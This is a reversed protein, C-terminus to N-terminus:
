KSPYLPIKFNQSHLIFFVRHLFYCGITQKQPQGLPGLLPHHYVDRTM